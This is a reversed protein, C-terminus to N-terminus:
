LSFDDHRDAALLFAAVRGAANERLNMYFLQYEIAHYNGAGLVRDLIRSPLDRPAAGIRRLVLMGDVCGSVQAKTGNSM